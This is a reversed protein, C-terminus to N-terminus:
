KIISTQDLKVVELLEDYGICRGKITYRSNLDSESVSHNTDFTGYTANNLMLSNEEIETLEGKVIITKNLYKKSAADPNESFEKALSTADITFEAKETQIDRHSQYIYKYGIFAGVILILVLILVKKM